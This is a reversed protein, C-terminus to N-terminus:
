VVAPPMPHLARACAADDRDLDVSRRACLSGAADAPHDVCSGDENTAFRNPRSTAVVLVVTVKVLDVEV